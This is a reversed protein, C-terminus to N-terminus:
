SEWGGQTALAWGEATRYLLIEVGATYTRTTQTWSLSALGDVVRAPHVELFTGAPRGTEMEERGITRVRGRWGEVVAPPLGDTVLFLTDPVLVRRLANRGGPEQGPWPSPAGSVLTELLQDVLLFVTDPPAASDGSQELVRRAQLQALTRGAPTVSALREVVDEAAPPPGGIALSLSGFVLRASDAEETLSRRHLEEALARGTRLEVMRIGATSREDAFVWGGMWAMWDRFSAGPEPLPVGELGTPAPRRGAGSSLAVMRAAPGSGAAARASLEDFASGPGLAEAAALGLDRLASDDTRDRLAALRRCAEPTCGWLSSDPTLAPVARTLGDLPYGLLWDPEVGVRYAREPDEMYPLLFSLAAIDVPDRGQPLWRDM